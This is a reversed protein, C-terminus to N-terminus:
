KVGIKSLAKPLNEAIDTALLGRDSTRTLDGALGHLYVGACAAEWPKLGQGILGAIVGTLVDGMGGTAMAPNGTPNLRTTQGTTVVTHHGKLVCLLHYDRAMNAAVHVRDHIITDRGIRMLRALEIVHPTIILGPHNGLDDLSINNLGDADLVLPQKWEKLLAKVVYAVSPSLSLGPGVALVNISRKQLYAQIVSLSDNSIGGDSTEPLPLTLAEPLQHAVVSRESEVIAVTVLGAGIRLAGRAVFVAAGSMGRSGAVILIHGNQGKYSDASRRPIMKRVNQATLFPPKKSM